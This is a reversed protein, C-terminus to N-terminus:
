RWPDHEANWEAYGVGTAGMGNGSYFLYTKQPAVFLAPYCVMEADWGTASRSLGIQGDQRTWHIGDKSIAFGAAYQKSLTDSTYRMEYSGDPRKTVRPRGIRYEQPGVGICHVGEEDDITLGDASEVYRIDYQPYPVGDIIEWGNGVSYWIKWRGEDYLVTHIARIFLANPTRDMIPTVHHRSFSEGNDHSTALGSYALFKAKKPLQFGVYYLRIEEGHRVVDGLIVGNDDFMGPQGTDLVPQPSVALIEAPNAANVDIYGIRSCGNEDRMGGYLRITHANFQFPTPTLFTNHDWGHQGSPRYIVGKKLWAM